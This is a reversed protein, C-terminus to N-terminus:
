FAHLLLFMAVKRGERRERSHSEVCVRGGWRWFRKQHGGSNNSSLPSGFDIDARKEGADEKREGERGEGGVVMLRM